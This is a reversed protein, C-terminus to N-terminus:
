GPSRPRHLGTAFSPGIAPPESVFRIAFPLLAFWPAAFVFAAVVALPLLTMAIGASIAIDVTREDLAEAREFGNM